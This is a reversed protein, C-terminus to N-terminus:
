SKPRAFFMVTQDDNIDAGETLSVQRVAIVGM